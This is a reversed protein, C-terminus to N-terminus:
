ALRPFHELGCGNIVLDFEEESLEEAMRTTVKWSTFRNYSKQRFCSQFHMKLAIKHHEKHRRPHLLPKWFKICAEALFFQEQLVVLRNDLDAPVVAVVETDLKIHPMLSYTEVYKYIYDTVERRTM